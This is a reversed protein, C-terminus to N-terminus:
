FLSETIKWIDTDTYHHMGPVKRIEEFITEPHHLSGTLAQGLEAAWTNGDSAPELSHIYGKKCVMRYATEDSGSKLMGELEYAPSYSFNWDRSAYKEDALSQINDIDERKFAYEQIDPFDEHVQEALAARLGKMSVADGLLEKLNIVHSDVSRIAKDRYQPHAPRICRRLESFDTDFLITGHHLVKNRFVHEANGSFKGEGIFLSSKARLKAELGYKLLTRILTGAYKEYNVLRSKEGTAVLSYNLNGKDHYVTGGGSIRRIVPINNRCTYMINAEASAVQHKGIIVSPENVWLMFADERFNRLVYEEAAINFFPDTQTRDLFIM